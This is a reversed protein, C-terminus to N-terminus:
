QDIAVDHGENRRAIKLRSLWILRGRGHKNRYDLQCQRSESKQFLADLCGSGESAIFIDM